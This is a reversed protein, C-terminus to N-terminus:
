AKMYGSAIWKAVNEENFSWDAKVEKRGLENGAEDFASLVAFPFDEDPVIDIKVFIRDPAWGIALDKHLKAYQQQEFRGVYENATKVLTMFATKDLPKPNKKDRGMTWPGVLAAEAQGEKSMEVAWGDGDESKIIKATWGDARWLRNENIEEAAGGELEDDQM